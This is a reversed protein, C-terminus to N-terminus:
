LNRQKVEDYIEQPVEPAKYQATNRNMLHNIVAEKFSEVEEESSFFSEDVVQLTNTSYNMYSFVTFERGNKECEVFLPIVNNVNKIKLNEPHVMPKSPEGLHIESSYKFASHIAKDGSPTNKNDMVVM